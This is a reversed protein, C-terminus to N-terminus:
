REETAGPVHGGGLEPRWACGQGQGRSGWWAPTIVLGGFPSFPCLIEGELLKATSTPLHLPVRVSCLTVDGSRCM